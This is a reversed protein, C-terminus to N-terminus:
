RALSVTIPAVARAEGVKFGDLKFRLSKTFDLADFLKSNKEDRRLVIAITRFDYTDKRFLQFLPWSTIFLFHRLM